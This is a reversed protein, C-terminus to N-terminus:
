PTYTERLTKDPFKKAIKEIMAEIPDEVESWSSFEDVLAKEAAERVPPPDEGERVPPERRLRDLIETPGIETQEEGVVINGRGATRELHSIADQDDALAQTVLYESFTKRNAGKTSRVWKYAGKLSKYTSEIFALAKDIAQLALTIPALFGASVVNLLKLTGKIFFRAAKFMGHYYRRGLKHMSWFGYMLKEMNASDSDFISESAKWEVNAAEADQKHAVGRIIDAMGLPKLVMEAIKSLLNKVVQRLNVDPAEELIKQPNMAVDEAENKANKSETSLDKELKANERAQEKEATTQAEKADVEGTSKGIDEIEGKKEVAFDVVKTMAEDPSVDEQETTAREIAALRTDSYQEIIAKHLERNRGQMVWGRMANLKISRISDEMIKKDSFEGMASKVAVKIAEVQKRDTVQDVMRGSYQAILRLFELLQEVKAQEAESTARRKRGTSLDAERTEAIKKDDDFYSGGISDFIGAKDMREITYAGWESFGKEYAKLMMAKEHKTFEHDTLLLKYVEDNLYPSPSQGQEIQEWAQWWTEEMGKEMPYRSTTEYKEDKSYKECQIIRNTRLGAKVPAFSTPDALQRQLAAPGEDRANTKNHLPMRQALTQQVAGQQITHVTEHATLQLNSPSQGAGYFIHNKNTFAKAGLDRSLQAAHTDTHVKVGSLDAGLKPELTRRVSNPLGSGGNQARRLSGELHKDLVGGALGIPASRQVQRIVPTRQVEAAEESGVRQIPPSTPARVVQRAVQDAEQEYKDGVPGVTLKPQTVPGTSQRVAHPIAPTPQQARDALLRQVAVNGVTRQLAMVDAPSLQSADTMARQVTGHLLPPVTVGQAKELARRNVPLNGNGTELKGRMNHTM